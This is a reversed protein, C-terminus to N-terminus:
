FLIIIPAKVFFDFAQEPDNLEKHLNGLGNYTQAIGRKDKTKEYNNLADNLLNNSEVYKGLDRKIIGLRYCCRAISHRDRMERALNLAELGFKEAESLNIGQDKSLDLLLNLRTTDIITNQLKETLIKIRTSDDLGSQGICAVPLSTLIMFLTEFLISRIRKM